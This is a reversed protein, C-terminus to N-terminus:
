GDRLMQAVQPLDEPQYDTRFGHFVAHQIPLDLREAAQLLRDAVAESYPIGVDKHAIIPRRNASRCCSFPMKVNQLV